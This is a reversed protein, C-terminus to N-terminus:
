FFKFIIIYFLFICHVTHLFKVNQPMRPLLDDWSTPMDQGIMDLYEVYRNIGQDRAKEIDLSELDLGVNEVKFLLDTIQRALIIM